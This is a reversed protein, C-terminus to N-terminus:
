LLLKGLLINMFFMAGYGVGPGKFLYSFIYNIPLMAAAYVMLVVYM